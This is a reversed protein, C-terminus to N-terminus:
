SFESKYFLLVFVMSNVHCEASSVLTIREETLFEENLVMGIDHETQHNENQNPQHKLHSSVRKRREATKLHSAQVKDSTIPLQTLTSGVGYFPRNNLTFHLKNLRVKRKILETSTSAIQQVKSLKQSCHSNSQEGRSSSFNRCSKFHLKLSRSRFCCNCM